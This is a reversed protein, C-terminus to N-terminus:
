SPLTFMYLFMSIDVIAELYDLPTTESIKEQPNLEINSSGLLCKKCYNKEPYKEQKSPNNQLKKYKKIKEEDKKITRDDFRVKKIIKTQPNQQAETNKTIEEM